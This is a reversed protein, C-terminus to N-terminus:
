EYGFVSGFDDDYNVDAYSDSDGFWSGAGISGLYDRPALAAM